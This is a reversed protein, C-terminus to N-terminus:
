YNVEPSKNGLRSSVKTICDLCTIRGKSAIEEFLAEAIEGFMTKVILIARPIRVVRLVEKISVSYLIGRATNKMNLLNHHELIVM